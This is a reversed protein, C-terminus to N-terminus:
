GVACACGAEALASTARPLTAGGASATARDFVVRGDAITVTVELDKIADPEVSRPDASLAVLDAFKGPTVSGKVDEEFACWASGMTYMRLAEEVAVAWEPGQIGATATSRTVSSWIGLLPQYPTVPSDSGGGVPQQSADLYLRLPEIDRAREPGLYKVFGAALSFQLPQQATIALRLANVRPFHDPQAAMMHILTWRKDAIAVERDVVEYAELVQDIAADGVCHTGVQWGLRAAELGFAVLNEGSMRPKGRPSSPDDTYAYPERHYGTEM